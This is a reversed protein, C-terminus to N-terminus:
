ITNLVGKWKETIKEVQYREFGIMTNAALEELRDSHDLLNDIELIMREWEFPPILIGNQGDAIIESPGIKIDFSVCPVQMQLAEVLCMGFGEYRSTLVFLKARNLYWEVQNVTGKLILQDELKNETVAQELIAREEGDGLVLWKWDPHKKLIPVAIKALYEIGKQYTLRGATVIWNERMVAEDRTMEPVINYIASIRSKRGLIKRYNERDEETLTIIYDSFRATLGSILRRYLIKQEFECNFHEWSVVKTKMGRTAPIALADLVIDIDIIVDIQQEKLFKRLKGILPLYGPGPKIWREGLHDRSIEPHLPYFPPERQETLSLFCIEYTHDKRLANALQIAVRETGGSRTIDKRGGGVSELERFEPRQTNDPGKAINEKGRFWQFILIASLEKIMYKTANVPTLYSKGEKRDEMEVKVEQVNAGMRVMYAITDPEPACSSDRAFQRIIRRGYLRMGSTPDTLSQGTTLRIAASILKEGLTRLRFPMKGDKFRSAIVIDCGTEEMLSVMSEIYEPLHQGDADFQLAADYDRELAYRMGTQIVKTLGQNEPFHMVHYQNEICIAKTRDTSGDNIILYDLQPCVAKLHEMVRKLSKEENYAPIIILVRMTKRERM